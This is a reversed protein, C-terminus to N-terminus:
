FGLMNYKRGNREIVVNGNEIRKIAQKQAKTNRMGTAQGYDVAYYISYAYWSFYYEVIDNAKVTVMNGAEDITTIDSINQTSM